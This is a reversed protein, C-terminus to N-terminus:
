AKLRKVAETIAPVLEFLDGVVGYDAKLFIPADPDKNIAVIVKSTRMGALHQIAGSVGCAIYLSPAVTKGTQGVQDAVPRWGEDVASRSAGVAGELLEALAKVVSYDDGGMGRGGTVVVDAETLEIRGTELSKDVFVLATDGVVAEVAAVEGAGQSQTVTMANPRVTVLQPAGQLKVDAMLKGGYIPRTAVLQEGDVRLTVCDMALPADLRASLRAGLEKGWVSAGIMVVAPDIDKVVAAAASAFADMRYDSLAADVVTFIKDAGYGALSETVTEPATGMVLACMAGGVQDAIRKAESAAEFSVKRLGDGALEAIVLVGQPM